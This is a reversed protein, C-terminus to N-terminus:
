RRAPGHHGGLLSGRTNRVSRLEGGYAWRIAESWLTLAADDTPAVITATHGDRAPFQVRPGHGSPLLAATAHVLPAYGGLPTAITCEIAWTQGTSFTMFFTLAPEPGSDSDDTLRPGPFPVVQGRPM